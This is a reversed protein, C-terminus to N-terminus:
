QYHLFKSVIVGVISGGISGGIAGLLGAKTKLMAIEMKMDAIDFQRLQDIKEDLRDITNNLRELESLILKRYEAWGDLQDNLNVPPIGEM